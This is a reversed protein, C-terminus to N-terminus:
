NDGHTQANVDAKRVRQALSRRHEVLRTQLEGDTLALIQAALLAANTAGDIAVTAVPVGSPMMVTSCLADFGGFAGGSLPVGIVPLVTHSAIVGALHAAMGAGAIIVSLGREEASRAYEAVVEPTRHASIVRLEWVIGLDSLMEAAKVMRGMDSDSGMVIGVRCRGSVVPAGEGETIM